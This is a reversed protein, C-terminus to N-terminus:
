PRSVRLVRQGGGGDRHALVPPSGFTHCSLTQGPRLGALACQALVLMGLAGGLSHGAICVRGPARSGPSAVEKAVTDAAGATLSGDTGTSAVAASGSSNAGNATGGGKGNGQGTTQQSPSSATTPQLNSNLHNPTDALYPALQKFLDVALQTVGTHCVLPPQPQTDQPLPLPTPWFNMLATTLTTLSVDHASWQVGRIFVFRRWAHVSVCVCVCVSTSMLAAMSLIHDYTARWTFLTLAISSHNPCRAVDSLM